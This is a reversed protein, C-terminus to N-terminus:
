FAMVIGFLWVWVPTVMFKKPYPNYCEGCNHMLLGVNYYFYPRNEFIKEKDKLSTFIMIFFGWAGLKLDIHGRPNWKLQIWKILDWESPSISIFKCILAHYKIFNRYTELKNIPIVFRPKKVVRGSDKDEMTGGVSPNRQSRQRIWQSGRCSRTLKIGRDCYKSLLPYIGEGRTQEDGNDWYGFYPVM